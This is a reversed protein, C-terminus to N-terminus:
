NAEVSASPEGAPEPGDGTKAAMAGFSSLFVIAGAAFRAWDAIGRDAPLLGSAALGVAIVVGFAAVVKPGLVGLMAILALLILGAGAIVTAARESSDIGSGFLGVLALVVGALLIAIFAGALSSRRDRVTPPPTSAPSAAGTLAGSEPNRNSDFENV